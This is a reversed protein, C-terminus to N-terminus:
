HVELVFNLLKRNEVVAARNSVYKSAYSLADDRRGVLDEPDLTAFHSLACSWLSESLSLTQLGLRDDPLWPTRDSVLVPTGVSLSEFIVHGFNEGRTPFAFLDYEAFIDRVLDQAVQDGIKVKINSPLKDILALCCNWHRLDEKPGYIGFEVPYPVEALVRLLFDLNKMPSIRSLFILRFHGPKRFKRHDSDRVSAPTLDPAVLISRAVGGMRLMIDEKEFESSAQWYLNRYLGVIKVVRIYVNKKFAKLALAGSSFEGRPAILWPTGSVLGTFRAILPLVSFRFSFFSNLYVGSHRVERLLTVLFKLTVKKPSVYLVSAKGVGVWSDSVIGPYRFRAGKDRDSTIIRFAFEDGLQEVLNEITRVPGGSRYSPVYHAIFVLIVPKL